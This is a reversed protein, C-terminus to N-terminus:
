PTGGRLLGAAALFDQLGRTYLSGSRLFGDNHGGCLGLIPPTGPAAAQLRRAHEFPVIEDERAHVLLLPAELRRVHELVPYPHRILWRVPLFPYIEAGLDAASTFASELIVAGPEREAALRAAVAAGLSRGFVVIDETAYGREERLYDWAAEADAHLGPADPRGSSRGYGRYDIILVALGVEHFRQLSHLRHGINGANGHFFLLVPADEEPGPLYWGHLRVDAEPELWVEEFDLGADAPTSTVDRSPMYILRDQTLYVTAVLVAYGTALLILFRIVNAMGMIRFM